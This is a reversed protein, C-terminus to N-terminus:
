EEIVLEAKLWFRRMAMNYFMGDWTSSSLSSIIWGGLGDEDLFKSPIVAPYGPHFDPTWGRKWEIVSVRTWPGWPRPAEWFIWENCSRTSYLYRNLQPIYVVSGQCIGSYEEMYETEDVIVPARHGIERSWGPEGGFMGAYFEWAERNMIEEKDVRALYVKTQAFNDAWRWNYDLGYVYVYDDMAYQQGRGYDLFWGTTFVYDTFMPQSRDWEWHLGRDRTMSISGHPADGFPNNSFGNKLNQFFMYIDGDICILGTPKRGTLWEEPGWQGAVFPGFAM